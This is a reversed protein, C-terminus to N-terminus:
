SSGSTTPSITYNLNRCLNRRKLNLSKMERDTVKIGNPYVKSNRQSDVALGKTTQTGRILGLMKELSRLPTGSWNRSIQSFLRHEIPNWKSAGTPYHCVTVKLGTRDAWQQLERKSLGLRYGNCGGAEAEIM